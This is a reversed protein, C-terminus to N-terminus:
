KEQFAWPNATSTDLTVLIDFTGAALATSGNPLTTDSVQVTNNTDVVCCSGGAAEVYNYTWGRPGVHRVFSARSDNDCEFSQPRIM